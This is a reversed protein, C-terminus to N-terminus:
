SSYPTIIFIYHNIDKKDKFKNIKKRNIAKECTLYIYNLTLKVRSFAISLFNSRPTAPM